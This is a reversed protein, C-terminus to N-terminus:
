DHVWPSEEDWFFLDCATHNPEPYECTVDIDNTWAALRWEKGDPRLFYVSPVFSDGDLQKCDSTCWREAVRVELRAPVYWSKDRLQLPTRKPTVPLIDIIQYEFINPRADPKFHMGEVGLLACLEPRELAYCAIWTEIACIPGSVDGICTSDIHGETIRRPASQEAPAAGSFMGTALIGMVFWPFSRWGFHYNRKNM